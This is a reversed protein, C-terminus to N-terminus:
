QVCQPLMTCGPFLKQPTHPVLTDGVAGVAAGVLSIGLCNGGGRLTEAPAAL